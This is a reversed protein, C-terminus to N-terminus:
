VRQKHYFTGWIWDKFEASQRYEQLVNYLAKKIEAKLRQEKLWELQQEGDMGELKKKMYKNNM